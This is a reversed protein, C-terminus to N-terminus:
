EHLILQIFTMNKEEQSSCKSLAIAINRIKQFLNSVNVQSNIYTIDSSISGLNSIFNSTNVPASNITPQSIVNSNVNINEQPSYTTSNIAVPKPPPVPRAKKNLENLNQMVQTITPAAPAPPHTLKNNPQEAYRNNIRPPPPRSIAAYSTKPTDKHVPTEKYVPTTINIPNQDIQMENDHIQLALQTQLSELRNQAPNTQPVQPVQAQLARHKRNQYNWGEELPPFKAAALTKREIEFQKQRIKDLKQARQDKMQALKTLYTPCKRFSSGHGAVQCPHCFYAQPDTLSCKDGYHGEQACKHCRVPHGCNRSSHGYNQCRHCHTVIIADFTEVKVSFKLVTKIKNVAEIFRRSTTIIVIDREREGSKMRSVSSTAVGQLELDEKIKELSYQTDIYKLLFRAPKDDALDHSHMSLNNIVAYKLITAHDDASKAQMIIFDQSKTLKPAENCLSFIKPIHEPMNKPTFKISPPKNKSGSPSKETSSPGPTIGNLCPKKTPSPSPTRVSPRPSHQDLQRKSSM